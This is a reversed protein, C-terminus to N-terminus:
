RKRTSSRPSEEPSEDAKPTKTQRPFIDQHPVRAETIERERDADAIAVAVFGKPDPESVSLQRDPVDLRRQTAPFDAPDGRQRTPEIAVRGVPVPPHQAYLEDTIGYM